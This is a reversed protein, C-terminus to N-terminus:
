DAKIGAGTVVKQWRAVDSRILTGLQAPNGTRVLIGQKALEVKVEETNMVETFDHNIRDALEPPTRAPALVAYWIDVADMAPFGQERFTRADPMLSSRGTGTVAIVKARGAQAQTWVSPVTAFMMQVQGGMLDTLAGAIGKYPVHVV